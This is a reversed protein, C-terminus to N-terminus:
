RDSLDYNSFQCNATIAFRVSLFSEDRVGGAVVGGLDRYGLGVVRETKPLRDNSIGKALACPLSSDDRCESSFWLM